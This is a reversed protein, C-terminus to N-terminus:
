IMYFLFFIGIFLLKKFLYKRVFFVASVYKWLFHYLSFNTEMTNPHFIIRNVTKKLIQYKLKFNFSLSCMFDKLFIFPIISIFHPHKHRSVILTKM